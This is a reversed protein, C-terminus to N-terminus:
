RKRALTLGDGIPVVSLSVREDLFLKANMKRIAKTANDTQDLDVVRGGRFSNDLAILGGTRMLQLCQEYYIEYAGKDADIFAFDFTGAGGQDILQQLTEQAPAIHLDIKQEVGAMLWYEQAIQTWEENIDCAVIQGDAPLALAVSLASYGTYVGVEITKRAGILEILLRMFQGQDASIQMESTKLPATVERLKQLVDPERMSIKLLYDYLADDLYTTRNM